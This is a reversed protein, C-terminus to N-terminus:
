EHESERAGQDALAWWARTDAPYGHTLAAEVDHLAALYGGSWGENSLGAAYKSGDHAGIDRSALEMVRHLRRLFAKVKRQESM